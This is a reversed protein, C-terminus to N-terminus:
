DRVRFYCVIFFSSEINLEHLLRSMNFLRAPIGTNPVTQNAPALNVLEALSSFFNKSSVNFMFAAAGGGVPGIYGMGDGVGAFAFGDNEEDDEVTSRGDWEIVLLEM